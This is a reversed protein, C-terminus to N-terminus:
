VLWLAANVNTNSNKKSTYKDPNAAFEPNYSTASTLLHGSSCSTLNLAIEKFVSKAQCNWILTWQPQKEPLSILCIAKGIWFWVLFFHCCLRTPHHCHKTRSVKYPMHILRHLGRLQRPMRVQLLAVPWTTLSKKHKQGLMLIVRQKPWFQRHILNCTFDDAAQNNVLRFRVHEYWYVVLM